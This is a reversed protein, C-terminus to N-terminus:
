LGNVEKSAQANRNAEEAKCNEQRAKKCAEERAEKCAEAQSRKTQAKSSRPGSALPADYLLPRSLAPYHTYLLPWNSSASTSSSRSATRGTDTFQNAFQPNPGQVSYGPRGARTPDASPNYVECGAKSRDWKHANTLGGAGIPITWCHAFSM